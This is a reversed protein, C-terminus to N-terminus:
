KKKGSFACYVVEHIKLVSSWRALCASLNKSLRCRVMFLCTKLDVLYPLEDRENMWRQPQENASRKTRELWVVSTRSLTRGAHTCRHTQWGNGRKRWTFVWRVSHFYTSWKTVLSNLFLALQLYDHKLLVVQVIELLRVVNCPWEECHCCPPAKQQEKSDEPSCWVM